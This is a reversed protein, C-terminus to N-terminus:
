DFRTRCFQRQRSYSIFIDDFTFIPLCFIGIGSVGCHTTHVVDVWQVVGVWQVVDVWESQGKYNVFDYLKRHKDFLINKIYFIFIFYFITVLSLLNVDTKM